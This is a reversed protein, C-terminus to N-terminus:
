RFDRNSPVSDPLVPRASETALPGGPATLATGVGNEHVLEGGEEGTLFLMTVLAAHGLLWLAKPRPAHGTRRRAIVSWFTLAVSLGLLVFGFTQHEALDEAAGPVPAVSQAGLYGSAAAIAACATGLYLSTRAFADLAPRGLFAFLFCSAAAGLLFAIPFHVVLPHPNQM